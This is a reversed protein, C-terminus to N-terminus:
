FAGQQAGAGTLDTLANKSSTDAGALDKAAGAATALTEVEQQMKATQARAQRIEAVDKDPRVIRPPVGLANAFEDVLQDRDVKDWVSPDSEAMPAVNIIFREMTGIGVSKQAQALVSTYEVSFVTGELEPPIKRVRGKRQMIKFLRSFMPNLVGDDIQNLVPGLILLREQSYEEVERATLPQKGGGMKTRETIMRFLDEHFATKIRYRVQEQKNELYQFGRYDVEHVPRFKKDSTEDLYTLDGSLLSSKVARMQTPGIMAPNVAKDLGQGARKEGHQLQKIDGLATMGPCDTSYVDEGSPDWRGVLIPFEDYGSEELFKDNGDGKGEGGWEFYCSAFPKHEARLSIRSRSPNPCIMHVVEIWDEYHADDWLKKVRESFVSWDPEGKENLKGFRMVLQRVTMRFRRSFVRVRLKEDNAICYSGVPFDYFRVVSEDDEFMGLTSTGFIGLDSYLVPTKTYWNSGLLIEHMDRRTDDLWTKVPGYEMLDRDPIVLGFWSRAPNTIGSQMGSSLTKAAFTATSDVINRSRKDGRNAETTVFRGRRPRIYDNLDRWHQTFSSQESRLQQEQLMLKAKKSQLSM